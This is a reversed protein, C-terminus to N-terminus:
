SDAPSSEDEMEIRVVRAELREVLLKHLPDDALMENRNIMSPHRATSSTKAEAQRQFQLAVSSGLWNRVSSEIKTRLDTRDIADVIWNYGELPELVLIGSDGLSIPRLYSLKSGLAPGRSETWRSWGASISTLDADPTSPQPPEAPATVPTPVSVETIAALAIPAPRDFEPEAEPAPM